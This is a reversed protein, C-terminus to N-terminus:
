CVTENATTCWMDSWDGGCTVENNSHGGAVSELEAESLEMEADRAPVIPLVLYVTKPDEELVKIKMKEPIKIGTEAEIAANPDKILQQRFSKDKLAKEILLQELQQRQNM